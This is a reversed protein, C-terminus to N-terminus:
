FLSLSAGAKPSLPWGFEEKAPYLAPLAERILSGPGLSTPATAAGITANPLESGVEPTLPSASGGASSDLRFVKAKHGPWM